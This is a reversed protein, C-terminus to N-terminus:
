KQMINLTAAALDALNLGGETFAQTSEGKEHEKEQGDPVSRVISTQLPMDAEEGQTLTDELVLSEIQYHFVGNLDDEWFKKDLHWRAIRAKQNFLADVWVAEDMARFDKNQFLSRLHLFLKSPGEGLISSEKTNNNHYPSVASSFDLRLHAEKQNKIKDKGTKLDIWFKLLNKKTCNRKKEETHFQRYMFEDYALVHLPDIKQGFADYIIIGDGMCLENASIRKFGLHMSRSLFRAYSLVIRGRPMSKRSGTNHIDTLLANRSIWPLELLLPGLLFATWMLGNPCLQKLPSNMPDCMAHWCTQKLNIKSAINVELVPNHTNIVHCISLQEQKEGRIVPDPIFLASTTKAPYRDIDGITPNWDSNNFFDILHRFDNTSMDDMLAYNFDADLKYAFAVLPGYHRGRMLGTLSLITDNFHELHGSPGNPPQWSAVRVAHGLKKSWMAQDQSLAHVILPDQDNEKYRKHMATKWDAISPHEIVLETKDNVFGWAFEPQAAQQPFLIVRFHGTSPKSDTHVDNCASCKLLRGQKNCFVCVSATNSSVMDTIDPRCGACHKCPGLDEAFETNANITSYGQLPVTMRSPHTVTAM